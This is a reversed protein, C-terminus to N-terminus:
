AKREPSSLPPLPNSGEPKAEPAESRKAKPVERVRVVEYCSIYPGAESNLKQREDPGVVTNGRLTWERPEGPAGERGEAESPEVGKGEEMPRTELWGEFREIVLDTEERQSIARPERHKTSETAAFKRLLDLPAPTRPSVPAPTVAQIIEQCMTYIARWNAQERKPVELMGIANWLALLSKHLAELDPRPSVPNPAPEPYSQNWYHGRGLCMPCEFDGSGGGGGCKHCTVHGPPLHAPAPGAAPQTEGPAKPAPYKDEDIVHLEAPTFEVGWGSFCAEADKGTVERFAKHVAKRMPGDAGPPIEVGDPNGIKCQWAIRKNDLQKSM